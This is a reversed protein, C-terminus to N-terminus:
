RRGPAARPSAWRRTTTAPRAARRSPTASGSATSSALDRQRHRLLDGHGQRGRGGSLSRRRRAAGHRAAARHADGVINDTLDLLRRSSSAPLRRRGGGDLGARGGAAAPAQARLRGERGGARHRREQGAAGQRPGAGRHPFGAAPGVLPHRRARGQRLASARGRRAPSYVFIECFPRPLPLAEVKRATSSSPSRARAAARRRRAPLLQHAGRGRGSQRLPAPHPGRRPEAVPPWRRRSARGRIAAEAAPASPMPRRGRSRLACPVARGRRAALGAHRALTTRMYDLGFPFRAPAPLPSLARLMAVDRWGLGAALMLANYGDSKPTARAVPGPLGGGAEASPRSTSRARRRRAGAGHRAALRPARRRRRPLSRSLHARRHRPLGPEGAAPVRESLPMPRGYAFVKLSCGRPRAPTAAISISPARPRTPCASSSPSTAGAGADAAFAERYAASFADGYRGALARARRARGPQRRARRAAPRELHARDRM